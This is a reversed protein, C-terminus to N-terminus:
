TIRPSIVTSRGARLTKVKALGTQNGAGRLEPAGHGRKKGISSEVKTPQKVKEKKKIM